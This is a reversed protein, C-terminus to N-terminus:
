TMSAEEREMRVTAHQGRCSPGTARALCPKLSQLRQVARRRRRSWRRRRVHPIATPGESGLGSGAIRKRVFWKCTQQQAVASCAHKVHCTRQM